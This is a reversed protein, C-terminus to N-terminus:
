EDTVTRVLKRFTGSYTGIGVGVILALLSSLVTLTLNSHETGTHLLVEFM